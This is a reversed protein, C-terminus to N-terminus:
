SFFTLPIGELSSFVSGPYLLDFDFHGRYGRVILAIMSQESQPHPTRCLWFVM